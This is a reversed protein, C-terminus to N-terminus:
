YRDRRAPRDNKPRAENVILNRGDLETENLNSIASQAENNNPMEVFGFGRGRGTARDVALSARDVAGHPEFLERLREETTSYSLNGVYINVM